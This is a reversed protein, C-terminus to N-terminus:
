PNIDGKGSKDSDPEVWNGALKGSRLEPLLRQVCDGPIAMCGHSGVRAITIGVARGALDIVPGGCENLMIPIAHEFVTPFRDYRFSRDGWSAQLPLRLSVPKDNSLLEVAVIDGSLRDKVCNHFDEHNRLPRGAVTQILDGKRIGAAFALGRAQRVVYGRDGAAISM